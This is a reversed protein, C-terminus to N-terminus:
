FFTYRFYMMDPQPLVYRGTNVWWSIFVAGEDHMGTTGFWIKKEFQIISYQFSLRESVPTADAEPPTEIYYL